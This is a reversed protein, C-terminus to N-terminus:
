QRRRSTYVKANVFSHITKKLRRTLHQIRKRVNAGGKKVPAKANNNGLSLAGLAQQQLYKEGEKRGANEFNRIDSTNPIKVGIDPIKVGMDPIKVGMDPIKVGMNNNMKVGIDPIKVGIDPIKVGMNNNMKLGDVATKVQQTKQLLNNQQTNFVQAMQLATNFARMFTETSFQVGPAAALMAANFGRMFAIILAIIGGAIPIEGVLAELINLSTNMIGRGSKTGIQKLSDV